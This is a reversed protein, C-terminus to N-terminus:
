CQGLSGLLAAVPAARCVGVTNGRGAGDRASEVSPWGASSTLIFRSPVLPFLSNSSRFSVHWLRSFSPVRSSLGRDRVQVQWHLQPSWLSSVPDFLKSTALNTSREHEESPRSESVVAQPGGRRPRGDRELKVRIRRFSRPQPSLLWRGLGFTNPWCAWWSGIPGGADEVMAPNLNTGPRPSPVSLYAIFAHNLPPSGFRAHGCKGIQRPPYTNIRLLVYYIAIFFFKKKCRWILFVM